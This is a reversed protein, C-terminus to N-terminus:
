LYGFKLLVDRNKIQMIKFYLQLHIRIWVSFTWFPVSSCSFNFILDGKADRTNQTLESRGAPWYFCLVPSFTDVTLTSIDYPLMGFLFIKTLSDCITLQMRVTGTTKEEGEEGHDLRKGEECVEREHEQIPNKLFPCFASQSMKKFNVKYSRTFLKQFEQLHTYFAPFAAQYLRLDSLVVVKLLKKQDKSRMLAPIASGANTMALVVLIVESM